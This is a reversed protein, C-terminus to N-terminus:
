LDDDGLDLKKQPHRAEEVKKLLERRRKREHARAQYEKLLRQQGKEAAKMLRQAGDVLKIWDAETMHVYKGKNRTIRGHDNRLEITEGGFSYIIEVMNVSIIDFYRAEDALDGFLRTQRARRAAEENPKIKSM